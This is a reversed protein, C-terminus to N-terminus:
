LARGSRRSCSAEVPVRVAVGRLHLPHDDLNRVRVRLARDRGRAERFFREDTVDLEVAHFPQHRAGLDLTLWTERVKPDQAESWRADLREEGRRPRGGGPVWRRRDGASSVRGALIVVVRLRPFDNEPLDTEHRFAEKGACRIGVGEVLV